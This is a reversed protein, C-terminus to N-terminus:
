LRFKMVTIMNCQMGANCWLSNGSGPPKLRSGIRPDNHSGKMCSLRTSPTVAAQDLLLFSDRAHSPQKWDNSNVMVM